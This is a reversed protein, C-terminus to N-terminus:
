IDIRRMKPVIKRYGGSVCVYNWFYACLHKRLMKKRLKYTNFNKIHGLYSNISSLFGKLDEKCLRRKGELFNNWYQIARYFNGKTRKGIYIRYPKIVIGLFNVGKSYHQLYIKNPHIQLFLRKGLYDKLVPIVSKLYEKDRDVLVFDDVYRGYYKIGLRGKVFHDFGDMYINGFLQSTLNGIPFGKNKQACFLSKSAPLGNWDSKKGKMICNKTPDHFVVKKILYLVLDVDFDLQPRCRGLVAKIKQYLLSQDMSMFYGKIDLKLIYCDRSYNRSCSRIFHGVRAIGFSSGKGKRCSYADHIFRREFVPSIYNYVLHHVVRDRFDAAFIERMVPEFCIFCISKSIEYKRDKIERFLEFLKSEYDIEFVLANISGRKNRRADYYAQFLDYLFFKQQAM